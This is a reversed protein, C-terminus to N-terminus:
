AVAPKVLERIQALRAAAADLAALVSDRPATMVTGNGFDFTVADGQLTVEVASANHYLRITRGSGARLAAPLDALMQKTLADFDDDLLLMNPGAEFMLGGSMGDGLNLRDRLAADEIVETDYFTSIGGGFFFVTVSFSTM